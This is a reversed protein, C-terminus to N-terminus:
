YLYVAGAFPASNDAGAADAGYTIGIANSDEGSAGIALINGDNNVSVSTGFFIGRGPIPLRLMPRNSGVVAVATLCMCRGPMKQRIIVKVAEMPVSALPM